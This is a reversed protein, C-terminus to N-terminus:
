PGARALQLLLKELSPIEGLNCLRDRVYGFFSVGLKLCTKKLSLFTDRAKRGAASRTTGSIKRRKVYERIDRECDNNHLPIHPHKLVQLLGEKRSYTNRLLEDLGDTLGSRKFIEDFMATIKTSKSESPSESFAKLEEYLDWVQRRIEELEERERHSVPVLKRYHREEHIWCLSHSAWLFFQPAADTIIPIGEPLGHLIASALIAAESLIRVDKEGSIKMKKLFRKWSKKSQFRKEGVEDLLSDLKDLSLATVNHEFAYILAGEDLVYDTYTGRLIELFNLRSKSESSHFYCFLPSSICTCVGNKGQHRASTDDAHLHSAEEIGAQRVAEMEQSFQETNGTLIGHLQGASIDVGQEHLYELVAPETMFGGHYLQVCHSILEAGFHGSAYEKPLEGRVIKGDPAVYVKIKFTIETAQVLLDQVTYTKYGKFRSGEPIHSPEIVREEKQVKKRGLPAEGNRNNKASGRSRKPKELSSPKIKPRGKQGKLNNIEEKLKDIEEQQKQIVRLLMEVAPTHESEPISSPDFGKM